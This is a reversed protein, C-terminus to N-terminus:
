HVKTIKFPRCHCVDHEALNHSLIEFQYQSLTSKYLSMKKTSPHCLRRLSSFCVYHYYTDIIINESYLVNGEMPEFLGALYEQVKADNMRYLKRFERKLQSRIKERKSLPKRVGEKLKIPPKKRRPLNLNDEFFATELSHIRGKFGMDEDLTRLEKLATEFVSIGNGYRRQYRISDNVRKVLKGHNRDVRNKLNEVSSFIRRITQLDSFYQEMQKDSAGSNRYKELNEDRHSSYELKDIMKLIETKYRYPHNNGNISNLAQFSPSEVFENFFLSAKLSLEAVQGIKEYLELMEASLTNMLRSVSRAQIVAGKLNSQIDEASNRKKETLNILISRLVSVHSGLQDSMEFRSQALMEILNGIRPSMYVGVNLGNKDTKLWGCEKLYKFIRSAEARAADVTVPGDGPDEETFKMGSELVRDEIAQRIVAADVMSDISDAEDSYFGEHLDSILHWYFERNKSALPKFIDNPYFEFLNFKM